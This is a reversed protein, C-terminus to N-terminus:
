VEMQKELTKEIKELDIPKLMEQLLEDKKVSIGQKEAILAVLQMLKTLEEETIIDFQLTIQERLSEFKEQQHQAILIFITLFIAEVATFTILLVYPYPDFPKLGPIVNMQLLIWVLFTYLNVVLFETTGVWRSIRLSMRELWNQRAIVRSKLDRILRRRNEINNRIFSQSSSENHLVAPNM